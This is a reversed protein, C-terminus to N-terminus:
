EKTAQFQDLPGKLESRDMGYLFTYVSAKEVYKSIAGAEFNLWPSNINNKTVCFIGYNTDELKKALTSGWRSGKDIDDSIFYDINPIILSIWNKLIYAVKRSSNGSCSIFIKM